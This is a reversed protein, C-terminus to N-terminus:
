MHLMGLDATTQLSLSVMAAATVPREKCARRIRSAISAYQMLRALIIRSFQCVISLCFLLVNGNSTAVPRVNQLVNAIQKVFQARAIWVHMEVFRHM